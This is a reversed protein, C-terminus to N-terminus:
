CCTTTSQALNISALGCVKVAKLVTVGQFMENPTHPSPRGRYGDGRQAAAQFVCYLLLTPLAIGSPRPIKGSTFVGNIERKSVAKSCKANHM